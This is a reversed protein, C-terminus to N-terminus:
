RQPIKFFHGTSMQCVSPKKHKQRIDTILSTGCSLHSTRVAASSELAWKASAIGGLFAWPTISYGFTTNKPQYMAARCNWGSSTPANEIFSYSMCGMMTRTNLQTHSPKNWSIYGWPSWTCNWTRILRMQHLYKSTTLSLTSVTIRLNSSETSQLYAIVGLLWDIKLRGYLYGNIYM